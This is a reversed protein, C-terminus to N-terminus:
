EVLTILGFTLRDWYNQYSGGNASWTLEREKVRPNDNYDSVKVDFGIKMSLEPQWFFMDNRDIACELFYGDESIKVAMQSNDVRSYSVGSFCGVSGKSPKGWVNAPVFIFHHCYKNYNPTFRDSNYRTELFVEVCDGGYLSFWERQSNVIKRDKVNAALYFNDEDWMIYIIAGFNSDGASMLPEVSKWKEINGDIPIKYKSRFCNAQRSVPIPKVMVKTSDDVQLPSIGLLDRYVDTKKFFPLKLYKFPCGTTSIIQLSGDKLGWVDGASTKHLIESSASPNLVQITKGKEDKIFRNTFYGDLEPVAGLNKRFGWYIIETQSNRIKESLEKGYRLSIPLDELNCIIGFGDDIDLSFTPFVWANNSLKLAPIGYYDSVALYGWRENISSPFSYFVDPKYNVIQENALLYSKYQRLWGIQRPDRYLEYRVFNSGVPEGRLLFNYVGKVGANIQVNFHDYMWKQSPYGTDDKLEPFQITTQTETILFWMTKKAQEIQSYAAGTLTLMNEGRSYAETGLGDFGGEIRKNIFYRRNECFKFVIPIDAVKTKVADSIRNCYEAISTDRFELLDDYFQSFDGRIKFISVSQPHYAFGQGGLPGNLEFMQLPVLESAVAFSPLREGIIAWKENLLRVATYKERLWVELQSSFAKSHPMLYIVDCRFGMENRFPDVFFRCNKGLQLSSFHETLHKQYNEYGTWFDWLSQEYTVLPTFYVDVVGGEPVKINVTAICGDEIPKVESQGVKLPESTRKDIVLYIVEKLRHEEKHIDIDMWHADLRIPLQKRGSTTINEIKFVGSNVWYAKLPVQSSDSLQIGYEFGNEELYDICHQYASIPVSTSPRVPNIYLDICGEKKILQLIEKDIEWNKKNEEENNSYSMLYRFCYMGGVPIFPSGEWILTHAENIYWQHSINNGDVFNGKTINKSM